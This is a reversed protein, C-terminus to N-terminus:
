TWSTPLKLLFSYSIEHEVLAFIQVLFTEYGSVQFFNERIFKM